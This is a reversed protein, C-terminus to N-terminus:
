RTMSAPSPRLARSRTREDAGDRTMRSTHSGSISPMASRSCILASRGSSGTTIMQPWALMSAATRAVRSPAASKMSFGNESSAIRAEISRAM